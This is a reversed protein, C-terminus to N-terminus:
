LPERQDGFDGIDNGLPDAFCHGCELCRYNALIHDDILQGLRAGTLCGTTGGILGGAIAGAVAGLVCGLPGATCGVVLGTEAGSLTSAVGGITGGVLGITGGTRRAINRAEIAASHCKPCVRFM